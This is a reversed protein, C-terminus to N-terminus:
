LLVLNHNLAIRPSVPRTGAKVAEAKKSAVAKRPLSKLKNKKPAM